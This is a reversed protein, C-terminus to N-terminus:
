LRCEKGVRREESRGDIQRLAADIIKRKTRESRALRGDVPDNRNATKTDIWWPDCTGSTAAREAM